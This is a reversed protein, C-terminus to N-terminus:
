RKLNLMIVPLFIMRNNKKRENYFGSVDCKKFNFFSIKSDINMFSTDKCNIVFSDDMDLLFSKVSTWTIQLSLTVAAPLVEIQRRPPQEALLLLM